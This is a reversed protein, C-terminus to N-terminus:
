NEFDILVKMAWHGERKDSMSFSSEMETAIDDLLGLDWALQLVTYRKRVEKAYVLGNIITEKDVNLEKLSIPAGIRKLIERIEEHHPVEKLSQSNKGIISLEKVREVRKDYSNIRMKM